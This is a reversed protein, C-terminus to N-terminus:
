GLTGGAPPRTGACTPQALLWQTAADRTPDLKGTRTPTTVDPDIPNEHTTGGRDVGIAVALVLASGDSLTYTTNATPRGATPQGFSRTHPRGIFAMTVGEGASGTLADTLVAVPVHALGSPEATPASTTTPTSGGPPVVHLEESISFVGAHGNREKYSVAPGAGLLPAVAELMPPLSGGTDGRLDVIWGCAKVTALGTLAASFYSTARDSPMLAEVPLVQLLGVGDALETATARTSSVSASLEDSERQNQTKDLFFSHRDGLEEIVHLAVGHVDALSTSAANAVDRTAAAFDVRDAYFANDRVIDLMTTGWKLAAGAPDSAYPAPSGNTSVPPTVM